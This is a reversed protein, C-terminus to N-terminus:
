NTITLLNGQLITNYLRLPLNAPGGTPFGEFNFTSTCCSDILFLSSGDVEVRACTNLPDFSCNREFARYQNNSAHYVIIGRVGGSIAVHGGVFQLNLYQQNTLNITENVIAVPIQDEPGSNECSILLFVMIATPIVLTKSMNMSDRGQKGAM